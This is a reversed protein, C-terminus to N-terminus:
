KASYIEKMKNSLNMCHGPKLAKEIYAKQAQLYDNTNISSTVMAVFVFKRYDETQLAKLFGWGNIVPMNIDTSIWFFWLDNVRSQKKQFWNWPKKEMQSAIYKILQWHVKKSLAKHPFLVLTDDDVIVVNFNM